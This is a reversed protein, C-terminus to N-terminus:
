TNEFSVICVAHSWLDLMALGGGRMRQGNDVAGRGGGRTGGASISAHARWFVRVVTSMVAGHVVAGLQVGGLHADATSHIFEDPDGGVTPCGAPTPMLWRCACALVSLFVSCFCGLVLYYM